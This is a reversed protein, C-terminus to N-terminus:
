NKADVAGGDPNINSDANKSEEKPTWLKPFEIWYEHLSNYVRHIRDRDPMYRDTTAISSHGVRKAIAAADFGKIHRLDHIHSARFMHCRKTAKRVGARKALVKVLDDVADKTIRNKTARGGNKYTVLFPDSGKAGQNLRITLYARLFVSPAAWLWVSREKGFKSAARDAHESAAVHLTIQNREDVLDNLTLGCIEANRLGGFVALIVICVDRLGKEKAINIARFIRLTEDKTFRQVFKKPQKPRPIGDCINEPMIRKYQLFKFFQGLATLKTLRTGNSNGQYFCHELYYEIIERTLLTVPPEYANDDLWRDFERLVDIYSAVSGKTLGKLVLMHKQFDPFYLEIM